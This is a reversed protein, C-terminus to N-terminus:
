CHSEALTKTKKKKLNIQGGLLSWFCTQMNLASTWKRVKKRTEISYGPQFTEAQPRAHNGKKFVRATLGKMRKPSSIPWLPVSEKWNLACFVLFILLLFINGRLSLFFAGNAVRSFLHFAADRLFPGGSQWLQFFWCVLHLQCRTLVRQWKKKFSILSPM